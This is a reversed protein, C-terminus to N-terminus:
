APKWKSRNAISIIMFVLGLVLLGSMAINITMLGAGAGIFTMGIVFLIEYRAGHGSEESREEIESM